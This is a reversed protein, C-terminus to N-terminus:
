AIRSLVIDNKCGIEEAVSVKNQIKGNKFYDFKLLKKYFQGGSFHLKCEILFKFKSFRAM